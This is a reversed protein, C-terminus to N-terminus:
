VAMDGIIRIDEMTAILQDVVMEGAKDAKQLTM